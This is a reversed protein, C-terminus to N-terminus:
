YHRCSSQRPHRNRSTLTTADVRRRWTRRRSTYLRLSRALVTAPGALPNAHLSPQVLPPRCPRLARCRPVCRNRQSSGAQNM